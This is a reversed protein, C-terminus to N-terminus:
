VSGEGAERLVGWITDAKKKGIGEVEMLQEKRIGWQWPVGAFHDVMRAALEPGVGPIGMLLHAAFDKNDPKGWPSSPGTRRHLAAHKDKRVWREMARVTEVTDAVNDSWEVWVGKSRITYLLSRIQGRTWRKGFGNGVMEGDLTWRFQGEVVLAAMRLRQMQALQMGLRGDDISSLLDSTEKRQIGFWGGKMPFM